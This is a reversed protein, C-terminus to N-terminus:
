RCNVAHKMIDAEVIVEIDLLVVLQEHEVLFVLKEALHRVEHVSGCITRGIFGGM